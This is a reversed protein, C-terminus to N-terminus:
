IFFFRAVSNRQAANLGGRLIEVVRGNRGFAIRAVWIGDEAVNYIHRSDGDRVINLTGIRFPRVESRVHIVYDERNAVRLVVHIPFAMTVTTSMLNWDGLRTAFWTEVKFGDLIATIVLRKTKPM